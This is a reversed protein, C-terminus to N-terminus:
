QQLTWGAAVETWGIWNQVGDNWTRWKGTWRKELGDKIVEVSDVGQAIVDQTTGISFKKRVLHLCTKRRM